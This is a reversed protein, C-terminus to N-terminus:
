VRIGVLTVDDTQSRNNRWTNFAKKISEKQSEMPESSIEALLAVLNKSMFKHGFDSDDGGLQDQFGDSFMYVTDGKCLKVSLTQFHEKEVLYRGVPMRDGKLKISEGNRIIYASQNALAYRLEMNEFDFCCITMDMGDDVTEDTKSILTTKIFGRMRDLVTGPFEADHETALFEKLSSIGLMSLFAGPIGHGTCDATVM